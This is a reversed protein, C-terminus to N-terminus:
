RPMYFPEYEGQDTGIGQLILQHLEKLTDAEPTAGEIVTSLSLRVDEALTLAQHAHQEAGEVSLNVQQLLQYHQEVMRAIAQVDGGLANLSDTGAKSSLIHDLMYISATPIPEDKHWYSDLWAAFQSALPKMGRRFWGKITNIDTIAM